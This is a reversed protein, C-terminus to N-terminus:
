HSANQDSRTVMGHENLSFVSVAFDRKNWTYAHENLLRLVTRESIRRTVILAGILFSEGDAAITFNM